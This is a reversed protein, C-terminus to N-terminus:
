NDQSSKSTSSFPLDATWLPLLIYDREPEKEKGEGNSVKTGLMYTKKWLGPKATSYESHRVISHTDLLSARMLKFVEHTTIRKKPDSVLMKKILEKASGCINPWPNISFYLKGHLVEESIDDESKPPFLKAQPFYTNSPVDLLMDHKSNEDAHRLSEILSSYDPPLAFISRPTFGLGDNDMLEKHYFRAEM